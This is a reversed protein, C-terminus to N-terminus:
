SFLTGSTAETDALMSNAISNKDDRVTGDELVNKALNVPIEIPYNGTLCADCFGANVAGTAAILKDIHLYSITDAGTYARIEEVSLNAALLESRSGTDM